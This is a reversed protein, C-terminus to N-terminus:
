KLNYGEFMADLMANVEEESHVRGAEIDDLGKKLEDYLELRATLDDYNRIYESQSITKSM